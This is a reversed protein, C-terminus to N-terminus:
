DKRPLYFLVMHVISENGMFAPMQQENDAESSPLGIGMCANMHVHMLSLVYMICPAFAFARSFKM